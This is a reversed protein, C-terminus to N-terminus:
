ERPLDRDLRMRDRHEVMWYFLDLDLEEAPDLAIAGAGAAPGIGNFKLRDWDVKAKGLNNIGGDLNTDVRVTGPSIGGSCDFDVPSNWRFAKPSGDGCFTIGIIEEGAPTDAFVAEPGLLVGTGEDIQREDFKLDSGARSFDWYNFGTVTGNPRVRYFGFQHHYNMVSLYNPKHTAHRRPNAGGHTLGLNHGLEHLFTGVEARRIFRPPGAGQYQGMAVIFTDGPIGAGISRSSTSFGSVGGEDISNVFMCYHMYPRMTTANAGTFPKGDFSANRTAMAKNWMEVFGPGTRVDGWREEFPITRDMTVHLEIGGDVPARSFVQRVRNRLQARNKVTRPMWDCEVWVDKVTPSGGAAQYWAQNEISDPISDRDTDQAEAAAISVLVVTAFLVFTRRFM